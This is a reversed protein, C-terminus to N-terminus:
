NVEEDQAMRERRAELVDLCHDCIGIDFQDFLVPCKRASAVIQGHYLEDTKKHCLFCETFNLNM